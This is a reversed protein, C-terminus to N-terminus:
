QALDQEILGKIINDKIMLLKSADLLLSCVEELNMERVSKQFISMRLQQELSLDLNLHFNSFNADM